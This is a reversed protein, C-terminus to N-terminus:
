VDTGACVNIKCPICVLDDLTPRGCIGLQSGVACLACGAKTGSRQHYRFQLESSQHVRVTAVLVIDAKHEISMRVM